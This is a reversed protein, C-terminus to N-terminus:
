SIARLVADDAYMLIPIRSTGVRPLDPAKDELFTGVQNIYLCFLFPTFYAGKAYGGASQSLIPANVMLGTASKPQRRM